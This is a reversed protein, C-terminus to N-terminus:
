KGARVLEAAEGIREDISEQRQVADGPPSGSTRIAVDLDSVLTRLERMAERTKDCSAEACGCQSETASIKSEVDGRFTAWASMDYPPNVFRPLGRGWAASAEEASQVCSNNGSRVGGAVRSKAGGVEKAVWPMVVKWAVFLIAAIVVWKLIRGLDM